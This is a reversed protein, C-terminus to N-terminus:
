EESVPKPYGFFNNELKGASYIRVDWRTKGTDLDLESASCGDNEVAEDVVLTQADLGSGTYRVMHCRLTEKEKTLFFKQCEWAPQPEHCVEGACAKCLTFSSPHSESNVLKYMTLVYQFKPSIEGEELPRETLRASMIPIEIPNDLAGFSFSSILTILFLIKKM